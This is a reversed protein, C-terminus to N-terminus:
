TPENSEGKYGIACYSNLPEDAYESVQVNLFHAANLSDVIDQNSYSNFIDNDLHLQDMQQSNRFGLVLSGGPRLVRHVEKLHISPNQWFYIVNVACVKDFHNNPYPLNDSQGLTLSVTGSSIFSKNLRSAEQFMVKAYDIGQVQGETTTSAIANILKGPGYGIELVHDTSSLNLSTKVRQNIAANAKNFIRTMLYRGVLGSPRSAQRSFFRVPFLKFLFM